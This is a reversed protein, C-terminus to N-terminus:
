DDQQPEEEQEPVVPTQRVTVQKNLWQEWLELREEDSLEDPANTEPNFPLKRLEPSLMDRDLPVERLRDWLATSPNAKLARVLVRINDTRHLRSSMMQAAQETETEAPAQPELIYRVLLDDLRLGYRGKIHEVLNPRYKGEYPKLVLFSPWGEFGCKVKMIGGEHWVLLPSAFVDRLGRLRLEDDTIGADFLDQIFASRDDRLDRESVPFSFILSHGKLRVWTHGRRAAELVLEEWPEKTEQQPLEYLVYQNLMENALRITDSAEEVIVVQCGCIRGASDTYFGANLVRVREMLTRLKPIMEPPIDDEAEEQPKMLEARIADTQFEFPWNGFLAVTHGDLAGKLQPEAAGGGFGRQEDDHLGLYHVVFILRDNEQDHEVRIRQEDFELCGALAAVLVAVAVGIAKRRAM